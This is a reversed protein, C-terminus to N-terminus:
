CYGHKVLSVNRVREITGHKKCLSYRSLRNEQIKVCFIHCDMQSHREKTARLSEKIKVNKRKQCTMTKGERLYIICRYIYVTLLKQRFEGGWDLLM